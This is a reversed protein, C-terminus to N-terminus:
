KIDQFEVIEFWSAPPEKPDFRVNLRAYDIDNDTSCRLCLCKLLDETGDLPKVVNMYQVFALQAPKGNQHCHLSVRIQFVYFTFIGEVNNKVIIAFLFSEKKGYIYKESAIVRHEKCVERM